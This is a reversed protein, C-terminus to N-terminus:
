KIYKLGIDSNYVFLSIVVVLIGFNTAMPTNVLCQGLYAMLPLFYPMASSKWLRRKFFRKILGFWITVWSILGAIGTTMLIQLPESHASLVRENAGWQLGELYPGLLEPGVGFFKQTFDLNWYVGILWTWIGGRHTGWSADFTQITRVIFVVSVAGLISELLIIMRGSIRKFRDESIMSLMIVGAAAILVISIFVSPKLFVASIGTIKVRKGAFCPCLAVLMLSLGYILLLLATKITSEKSHFLYPIAFFACVGIGLYLGDSASLIMNLEGLTLIILYIVRSERTKSEIFFCVLLPMILCLYGVLMNINGITSVYLYYQKPQMNTHLGFADIGMSHLITVTFIFANVGVVPLWYNHRFQFSRSLYLYLIAALFFALGGVCM